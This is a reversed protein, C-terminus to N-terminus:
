NECLFKPKLLHAPVCYDLWEGSDYSSYAFFWHVEKHNSKMEFEHPMVLPQEGDVEYCWGYSRMRRDDIVELAELGTPTNYISHIGKDIGLYPIDNNNLINITLFGLSNGSTFELQSEFKPNVSCPGTIKIIGASLTTPLFLFLLGFLKVIGGLTKTFSVPTSAQKL